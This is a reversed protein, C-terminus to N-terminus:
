RSPPAKEQGAPGSGHAGHGPRGHHPHAAKMEDQTVSGDGNTDIQAFHRDAEATAEDRSISGDHNADAHAFRMEVFKEFHDGHQAMEDRSLQGDHNADLKAFIGDPMHAVEARSLKGDNNKDQDAFRKEAQQKGFAKAEALSLSGDHNQDAKGFHELASTRMEERTVVGNGDRDFRALGPAHWDDALALGSTALLAAVSALIMKNM